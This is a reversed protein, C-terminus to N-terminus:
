GEITRLFERPTMVRIGFLESGAFHRVKHTVIGDARGAVALELLFEDGPDPLFPRLRFYVDTERGLFCFARVIAEVTSAPIGLREAERKGVAEYELVLPVSILPVWSQGIERLVAFSAGRRSRLASIVVNTDLVVSYM